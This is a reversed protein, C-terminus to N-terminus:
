MEKSRKVQRQLWELAELEVFLRDMEKTSTSQKLHHRRILISADLKNLDATQLIEAQLRLTQNEKPKNEPRVQELLFTIRDHILDDVITSM